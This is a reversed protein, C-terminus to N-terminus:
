AVMDSPLSLCEEVSVAVKGGYRGWRGRFLAVGNSEVTVIEPREMEFINGPQLTM